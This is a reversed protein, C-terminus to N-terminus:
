KRSRRSAPRTRRPASVCEDLWALYAKSGAIIPLAVFEPVEYSHLKRVAAELAQLRARSTKMVLLTEEASEVNGKWRYTSHIPVNFLNVCAALRREVVARAIRKGEEARGCTVLVVVKGTPTKV